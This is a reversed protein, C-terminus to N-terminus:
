LKLNYYVCDSWIHDRQSRSRNTLNASVAAYYISEGHQLGKEDATPSLTAQSESSKCSSKRSMLCVSFAMLVSLFSTFAFAGRWFSAAFNVDDASGDIVIKTGSGFLIRGCSAVACYYIGARTASSYNVPLTYVCTQTKTNPERECQDGRDGHNYILGPHSDEESRYWYVSHKGDCIETQVRCSLNVPGGPQIADYASQQVSTQFNLGSGEVSITMSESFNIMYLHSNLCFYTGSDSARLDTITLHNKNRDSDLQFRPNNKFEDYITSDTKYLYFNSIVRPKQGLSQKYWYLRTAVDGGYFCELTVNGGVNASIFRAGKHIGDTTQAIDGFLLCTLYFAFVTSAM